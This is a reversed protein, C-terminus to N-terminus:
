NVKTRGNEIVIETVRTREHGESKEEEDKDEEDSPLNTTDHDPVHIRVLHTFVQSIKRVQNSSKEVVDIASPKIAGDKVQLDEKSSMAEHFSFFLHMPSFM